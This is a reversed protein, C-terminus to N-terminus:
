RSCGRSRPWLRHRRRRCRRSGTQLIVHDSLRLQSPHEAILVVAAERDQVVLKQPVSLNAFILAVGEPIDVEVYGGAAHLPDQHEKLINGRLLGESAVGLGEIVRFYGFTLDGDLPDGVLEETLPHTGLLEPGGRSRAGFPSGRVCQIYTSGVESYM